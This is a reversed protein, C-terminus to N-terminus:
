LKLFFPLRFKTIKKFDKIRALLEKKDLNELKTTGFGEVSISALASGVILANKMNDFSYNNSLALYGAFGGAFTDGAGTPDIVNELPYAPAFFVKNKSFLLAGHEGKKIIVYKPGLSIIKKAAVVLNYEGSLQRAEEENIALLDVLSITKKLEDMMTDMWFNMTDMIILNPRNSLQEIVSRQVVPTLNGLVVVDPNKYEQPLVPNFYELANLETKLTQRLNMNQHYKGEWFFTNHNQNIEVGRLDINRSSLLNFYKEPFDKGVISVVQALVDFNSIALSIYTAAGGLIKDTKGYPTEIQDFAISGVILVKRKKM